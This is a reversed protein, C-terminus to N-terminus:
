PEEAPRDGPQDVPIVVTFTSGAGPRSDVEVRGHHAEAIAKVIALGLGAAESHHRGPGRRFREFLQTQQEPPIGPGRDRVWFRARGDVVVSGLGIPAQGGGYRVANQALQVVAQTLRQPDAVVVGRGRGELEWRGPALTVV